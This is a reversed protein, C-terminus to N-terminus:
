SAQPEAPLEPVAAPSAKTKEKPPNLEAMRTLYVKRIKFGHILSGIAVAAFAGINITALLQGEETQPDYPLVFVILPLLYLGAFALWQWRKLRIGVYLFSAWNLLGATFLGAMWLSHKLQWQWPRRTPSVM